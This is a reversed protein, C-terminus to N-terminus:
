YEEIAKLTKKAYITKNEEMNWNKQKIVYTEKEKQLEKRFKQILYYKQVIKQYWHTM